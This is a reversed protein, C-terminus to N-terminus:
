SIRCINYIEKNFLEKPTKYGLIKRWTDEIIYSFYMIEESYGSISIDSQIDFMTMEAFESCNDFTISKFVGALM